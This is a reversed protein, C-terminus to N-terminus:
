KIAMDHM